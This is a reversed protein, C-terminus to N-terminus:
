VFALPYRNLRITHRLSKPLKRAALLSRVTLEAHTLTLGIVAWCDVLRISRNPRIMSIPCRTAFPVDCQGHLTDLRVDM